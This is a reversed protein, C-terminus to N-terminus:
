KTEATNKIKKSGLSLQGISFFQKYVELACILVSTHMLELCTSFSDQKREFQRHPHQIIGQPFVDGLENLYDTFFYMKAKLPFQFSDSPIIKWL